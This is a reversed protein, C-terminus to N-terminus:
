KACHAGWQQGHPRLAGGQPRPLSPVQPVSPAQEHSERRYKQGYNAPM